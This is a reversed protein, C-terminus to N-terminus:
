LLLLWIGDTRLIYLNAYNVKNIGITALYYYMTQFRQM